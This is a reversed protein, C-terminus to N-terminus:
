AASPADNEICHEHWIGPVGELEYLQDGGHYFGVWRVQASKGAWDLQAPDLPHHFRWAPRLFGELTTRAAIRIATGVPFKAEYLYQPAQDM